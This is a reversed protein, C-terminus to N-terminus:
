LKPRTWTTKKLEKNHYYKKGTKPDTLEKWGDPLQTQTPRAVTIRHSSAASSAKPTQKSKISPIVMGEILPSYEAEMQQEDPITCFEDSGANEPKGQAWLKQYFDRTIPLLEDWSFTGDGDKDLSHYKDLLGKCREKLLKKITPIDLQGDDKFESVPCLGAKFGMQVHFAIFTLLENRDLEGSGDPDFERMFDRKLNKLFTPHSFAFKALMSLAVWNDANYPSEKIYRQVQLLSAGGKILTIAGREFYTHLAVELPTRKDANEKKLDGGARCILRMAYCREALVRPKLSQRKRALFHLPTDESNKDAYNPNAVRGHIDPTLLVNLIGANTINRCCQVLAQTFDDSTLRIASTSELMSKALGLRGYSCAQVFPCIGRGDKENCKEFPINEGGRAIMRNTESAEKSLASGFCGMVLLLRLHHAEDETGRWVEAEEGPM